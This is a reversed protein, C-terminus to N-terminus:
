EILAFFGDARDRHSMPSNSYGGRPNAEATPLATVRTLTSDPRIPALDAGLM